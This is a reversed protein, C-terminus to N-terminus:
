TIHSVQKKESEEILRNMAHKEIEQGAVDDDDNICIFHSFISSNSQLLKTPQNPTNRLRTRYILLQFLNFQMRASLSWLILHSIIIRIKLIHSKLRIHCYFFLYWLHVGFIIFIHAMTVKCETEDTQVIHQPTTIVLTCAFTQLTHTHTDLMQSHNFPTRCCM